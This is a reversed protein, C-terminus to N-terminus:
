LARRLAHINQFLVAKPVNLALAQLSRELHEPHSQVFEIAKALDEIISNGYAREAKTVAQKMLKLSPKMMALDIIDRSFASEDRWRDSNALLKSAAMDCSTLTAVGCVTDSPAPQDLVMRSELVIEFKIPTAAVSLMARIGYQDAQISNLLPFPTQQTQLISSFQGPGTLLQRLYRYSSLDSILFDLDVSERFEGYRLTIATGGGFYCSSARLLEADLSTLVIAIKQHHARNFM